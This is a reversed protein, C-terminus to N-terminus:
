PTYKGVVKWSTGNSILDVAQNYATLVYNAADDVTESGNGDITVTYATNDIKKVTIRQRTFSAATPLTAIRNGGNCNVWTITKSITFDSGSNQTETQYKPIVYSAGTFTISGGGDIECYNTTEAGFRQVTGWAQAFPRWGGGLRAVMYQGGTIYSHPHWGSGDPYAVSGNNLAQGTTAVPAATAAFFRVLNAGLDIRSHSGDGGKLSWLDIIAQNALGNNGAAMLRLWAERSDGSNSLVRVYSRYNSSWPESFTGMTINIRAVDSESAESLVTDTSSWFGAMFRYDTSNDVFTVLRAVEDIDGALIPIEIGHGERGVVVERNWAYLTGDIVANGQVDLYAKPDDGDFLGVRANAGREIKFHRNLLDGWYGEGGVWSQNGYQPLLPHKPLTVAAGVLLFTRDGGTGTGELYRDTMKLGALTNTDHTAIYGGEAILGEGFITIQRARVNADIILEGPTASDYFIYSSSHDPDGVHVRVGGEAGDEYTSVMFVPENGIDGMTGSGRNRAVIVANDGFQGIGVQPGAEDGVWLNKTIRNGTAQDFLLIVEGANWIGFSRNQASLEVRGGDDYGMIMDGALREGIDRVWIGFSERDYADWGFFGDQTLMTRPGTINGNEDELGGAIIFGDDQVWISEFMGIVNGNQNIITGGSTGTPLYSSGSIAWSAASPSGHNEIQVGMGTYVNAGFPVQARVSGSGAIQVTATTIKGSTDSQVASVYGSAVTRRPQSKRTVANGLNATANRLNIGDISRM